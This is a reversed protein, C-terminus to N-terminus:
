KSNISEPSNAKSLTITSFPDKRPKSETGGLPTACPWVGLAPCVICLYESRIQQCSFFLYPNLSFCQSCWFYPLFSDFPLSRGTHELGPFSHSAPCSPRLVFVFACVDLFVECEWKGGTAPQEEEGRERGAGGGQLPRKGLISSSPSRLLRHERM